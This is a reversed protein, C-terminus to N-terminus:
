LFKFAIKNFDGSRVLCFLLIIRVEGLQLGTKYPLVNVSKGAGLLARRQM